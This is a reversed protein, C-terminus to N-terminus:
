RILVMKKTAILDNGSALRYIYVGSSLNKANFHVTYNGAKQFEDVLTEIERGLLDFIKLIVRDTKNIRYSIKTEPNFPNPYNQALAFGAPYLLRKTKDEIGTVGTMQISTISRGPLSLGTLGTYNGIIEGQETESTRVIQGDTISFDIIDITFNKDESGTNLIVITLSDVEPSVYASMRIISSDVETSVRKWGANIFKSYQRFAWYTQSVLYGEETTWSGQNWPNEMQVLGSSEWAWVLPWYLYASVNGNVLCDHMLWATNFWDGYDYETQFIPKDSYSNAISALNTNFADPHVNGDGGNYLHYAYGDCHDRNLNNVYTQFSNYGIGQDEPALIKPPFELQQFAQYVSDLAKGYGAETATEVPRLICSEWDATYAPENQISIFSPEIDISKYAALADVWYQAFAGYVYEDNEKKLTGGGETSNNSKLDAPPSWSSILIKPTYESYDYMAGVIEACDPAFNVPNNRYENRLRLIDLGLEDFIYYYIDDKNPHATLWGAYWAISAGFGEMTQHTERINVNGGAAFLDFPIYIVIIGVLYIHHYWKM